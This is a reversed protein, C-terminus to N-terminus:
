SRGAMQRWATSGTLVPVPKFGDVQLADDQAQLGLSILLSVGLLGAQAVKRPWRVFSCMM